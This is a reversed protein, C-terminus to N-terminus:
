AGDAIADSGKDFRRGSSRGGMLLQSLPRVLGSISYKSVSHDEQDWEGFRRIQPLLHQRHRIGHIGFRGGDGAPPPPATPPPIPHPALVGDTRRFRLPTPAAAM